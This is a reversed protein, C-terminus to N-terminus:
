KGELPLIWKAPVGYRSVETLDVQEDILDRGPLANLSARVKAYIALNKHGKEKYYDELYHAFQLIMDPRAAMKGRQRSSLFEKLDVKWTKGTDKDMAIIEAKAKKDRLKMHWSFRHGEETWHVNGPILLHRFPILINLLIFVLLFQRIRLNNSKISVLNPAAIPNIKLLQKIRELINKAWDPELFITTMGIMLWPFIGISFIYANTLHFSIALVFAIVRTKRWFLLPVIMLDFFLGGYSLFYVMFESSAFNNSFGANRLWTRMPEGQLWFSNLKAIGGFFYPVGVIFRLINVTWAPTELSKLKPWLLADLSYSRHAPILIMLFSILSILYFHNLYNAKDLLFVYTFALFFLITSLRYFLGLFIFLAFVGLFFFHVYMFEGPWPKVWGFGLYTFFFDPHIWYREIWEYQFYRTCEWVM